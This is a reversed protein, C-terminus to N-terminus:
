RQRRCRWRLVRRRSRCCPPSILNFSSLDACILYYFKCSQQLGFVTQLLRKKNRLFPTLKFPFLLFNIKFTIYNNMISQLIFNYILKLYFNLLLHSIQGFIQLFYVSICVKDQRYDKYKDVVKSDDAGFAKGKVEAVPICAVGAQM